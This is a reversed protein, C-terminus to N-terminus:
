DEKTIPKDNGNVNITFDLPKGEPSSLEQKAVSLRRLEEEDSMLKYLSIQLTPNESEHWKDRMQAKRFVRVKHLAAKIADSEHLKHNYFTEKSCPIFCIIEEIFILNNKEIAKLAQEELEATNYAM